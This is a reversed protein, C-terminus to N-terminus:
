DGSSPALGDVNLAEVGQVSKAIREVEKYQYPSSLKGKITIFGARALVEVELDETSTNMALNARIRSALALDNLAARSETNWVFRESTVLRGLLGCVDQIGMNELNFVIDYLSPDTWDVGYLYHTWKKRDNDMRQIHELAQTRDLKLREEAMRIRFEMPAIIRCRLVPAGKLLLHGANGHYVVKGSRVEESLAAQILALYIYKSHRFRGLFSPPKQLANRLVDQSIGSVAAKEVIVERDISRYGLNESLCEALM